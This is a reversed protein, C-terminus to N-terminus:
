KKTDIDEPRTATPAPITSMLLSACFFQLMFRLFPSHLVDRLTLGVTVVSCRAAAPLPPLPHVLQERQCYFTGHTHLATHASQMCTCSVRPWNMVLRCSGTAMCSVQRAITLIQYASASRMFTCTHLDEREIVNGM